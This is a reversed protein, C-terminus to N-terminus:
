SAAALGEWDESFNLSQIYLAAADFSDPFLESNRKFIEKAKDKRESRFYYTGATVLISSDAPHTALCTDMLSDLQPQYTQAFHADMAMTLQSLYRSKVQSPAM